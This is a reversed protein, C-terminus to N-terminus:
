VALAAAKMQVRHHVPPVEIGKFHFAGNAYQEFVLGRGPREAITSPDIHENPKTTTIQTLCIGRSRDPWYLQDPYARAM